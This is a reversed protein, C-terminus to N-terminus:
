KRRPSLILRRINEELWQVETFADAIQLDLHQLLAFECRIERDRRSSSSGRHPSQQVADLYSTSIALESPRQREVGEHSARLRVQEAKMEASKEDCASRLPSVTPSQM